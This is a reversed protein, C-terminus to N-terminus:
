VSLQNHVDSCYAKLKDRLAVEADVGKNASIRELMQQAKLFSNATTNIVRDVIERFLIHVTTSDVDREMRTAAVAGFERELYKDTKM